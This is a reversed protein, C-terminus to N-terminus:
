AVLSQIRVGRFLILEEHLVESELLAVFIQLSALSIAINARHLMRKHNHENIRVSVLYTNHM